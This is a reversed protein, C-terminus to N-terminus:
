ELGAKASVLATILKDLQEGTVKATVLVATEKDKRVKISFSVRDNEEKIEFYNQKDLLIRV